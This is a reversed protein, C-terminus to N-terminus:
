KLYAQKRAGRVEREERVTKDKGRGMDREQRVPILRRAINSKSLLISKRM